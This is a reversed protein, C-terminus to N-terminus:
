VMHPIEYWIIVYMDEDGYEPKYIRVEKDVIKATPHGEIWKNVEVQIQETLGAKKCFIRIQIMSQTSRMLM